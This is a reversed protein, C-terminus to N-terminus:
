TERPDHKEPLQSLCLFTSTLTGLGDAQSVGHFFSGHAPTRVTSSTPCLQDYVHLTADVHVNDSTGEEFTASTPSAM